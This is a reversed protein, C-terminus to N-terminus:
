ISLKKAQSLQVEKVIAHLMQAIESADKAGKTGAFFLADRLDISLAIKNITDNSLGLHSYDSLFYRGCMVVYIKM